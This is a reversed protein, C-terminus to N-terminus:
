GLNVEGEKLSKLLTDWKITIAESIADDSANEILSILVTEVSAPKSLSGIAWQMMRLRERTSDSVRISTSM